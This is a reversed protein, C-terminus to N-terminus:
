EASQCNKDYRKEILECDSIKAIYPFCFRDPILENRRYNVGCVTWIKGSPHHKVIDNPMIAITLKESGTPANM